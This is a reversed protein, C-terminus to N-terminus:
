NDRYKHPIQEDGIENIWCLGCKLKDYIWSLGTWLKNMIVSLFSVKQGLFLSKTSLVTFSDVPSGETTSDASAAKSVEGQKQQRCLIFTSVIYCKIKSELPFNNETNPCFLDTDATEIVM